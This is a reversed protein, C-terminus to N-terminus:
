GCGSRAAETIAYESNRADRQPGPRALCAPKPLTGLTNMLGPPPGDSSRRMLGRWQERAGCPRQQRCQGATAAPRHILSQASPRM